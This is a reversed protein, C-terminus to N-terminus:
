RSHMGTGGLAPWSKIGRLLDIHATECALFIFTSPETAGLVEYLEPIVAWADTNLSIVLEGAM